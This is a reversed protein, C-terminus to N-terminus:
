YEEEYSVSKFGLKRFVSVLEEKTDEQNFDFRDEGITISFGDNAEAIVIEVDAKMM